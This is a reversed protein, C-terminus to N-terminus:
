VKQLYDKSAKDQFEKIRNFRTQYLQVTRDPITFFNENGKSARRTKLPDM